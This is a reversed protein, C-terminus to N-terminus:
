KLYLKIHAFGDGGKGAGGNYFMAGGGGGGLGGAGGSIWGAGGGGGNGGRGGQGSTYSGSTTYFGPAGGGGGGNGGTEGRNSTNGANLDGGNGGYFSIGWEGRSADYFTGVERSGNFAAGNPLCGGGFTGNSPFRTGGGGSFNVSASTTVNGGIGFIDVGAGGTSGATLGPKVSNAGFDWNASPANGDLLSQAGYVGGYGGPAVYIVGKYTIITDGGHQGDKSTNNGGAGGAGIAINVTDGKKVNLHKLGWGGSYGGPCPPTVMPSQSSADGVAGGGGAGLARVVLVGDVPITINTSTFINFESVPESSVITNNGGFGYLTTYNLM